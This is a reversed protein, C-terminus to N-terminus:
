IEVCEGDIYIYTRNRSCATLTCGTGNRAGCKICEEINYSQNSM